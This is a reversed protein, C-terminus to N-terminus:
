PLSKKMDIIIHCDKQTITTFKSAYNLAKLFLDEYISPNFDSVHFTIFTHKEKEPIAKFWETSDKTSKWLNVKTM